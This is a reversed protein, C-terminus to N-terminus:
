HLRIKSSERAEFTREALSTHQIIGSLLFIIVKLLARPAYSSTGGGKYTRELERIDLNEVVADVVRAPHEAPVMDSLYVPFLSGENRNYSKYVVKAM